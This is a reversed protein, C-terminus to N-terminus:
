IVLLKQRVTLSENYAVVAQLNNEVTHTRQLYQLANGLKNQLM